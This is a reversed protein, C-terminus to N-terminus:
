RGLSLAIKEIAFIQLVALAETSQLNLDKETSRAKPYRSTRMRIRIVVIRDGELHVEFRIALVFACRTVSARPIFVQGKKSVPTHMMVVVNQRM